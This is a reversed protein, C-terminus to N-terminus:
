HFQLDLCKLFVNTFVDPIHKVELHLFRLIKMYYCNILFPIQFLVLPCLPPNLCLLPFPSIIHNYQSRLFVFSFIKPIYKNLFLFRDKVLAVVLFAGLM